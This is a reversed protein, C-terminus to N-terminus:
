DPLGYYRRREKEKTRKQLDETCIKTLRDEEYTVFVYINSNRKQSEKLDSFTRWNKDNCTVILPLKLLDYVLQKETDSAESSEGNQYIFQLVYLRNLVDNPGLYKADAATLEKFIRRELIKESSVRNFIM